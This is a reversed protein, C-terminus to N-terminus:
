FIHRIPIRLQLAIGLRQEAGGLVAGVERARTEGVEGLHPLPRGLEHAPVVVLVAVAADAGDGRRLAMGAPVAGDEGGTM